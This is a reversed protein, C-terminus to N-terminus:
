GPNESGRGLLEWQGYMRVLGSAADHEGLSDTAAQYFISEDVNFQLGHCDNLREKFRYWPEFHDQLGQLRWQPAIVADEAIQGGVSTPGGFQPIDTYISNADSDSEFQNDSMEVNPVSPDNDQAYAITRTLLIIACIGVILVKPQRDM